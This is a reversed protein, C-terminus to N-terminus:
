VGQTPKEQRTAIEMVKKQMDMQSKQKEVDLEALKKTIEIDALKQKTEIESAMKQQEMSADLYMKQADLEGKQATEQQKGMLQMAAIKEKSANNMAAIQYDSETKLQLQLLQNQLDKITADKQAMQQQNAQLIQQIQMQLKAVQPIEDSLVEPPLLKALMNSVSSIEVNDLTKTIGYAIVPKMDEPYLQSLALLQRRAEMKSTIAEPGAGVVVRLGQAIEPHYMTYFELLVVGLQKVSQKAHETFHSVNSETSKTRLLISEATEEAGLSSAVGSLPMGVISAMLDMQGQVISIIDDCQVSNDFRVPPEIKQGGSTFDNFPLLPSLNKDANEYYRENGKLATKGIILQSKPTRALREMLQRVAYNIVMQPYRLKHTIGVFTRHKEIWTKTGCIPVVPIHKLPLSIQQVVNGDLFKTFLVTKVETKQTGLETQVEQYETKLEYFNVIVSMDEQPNFNEGLNPLFDKRVDEDYKEGYKAKAKSKTIYEVVACTEADSGNIETSNPDFMVMTPDDVAFVGIRNDDTNTVYFFGRGCEVSAILGTEIANKTQWENQLGRVWENIADVSNDQTSEITYSIDFPRALFPNVIANKFNDIMNFVAEPRGSEGAATVFENWQDGCAFARDKRMRQVDSKNREDFDRLFKDLRSRTGEDFSFEKDDMM